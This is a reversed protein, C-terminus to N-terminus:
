KGEGCCIRTRKVKVTEALTVVDTKPIEEEYTEIRCMPPLGTCFIRLDVKPTIAGCMYHWPNEPDHVQKDANKVGFLTKIGLGVTHDAYTWVTASADGDTRVSIEFNSGKNLYKDRFQQLKTVLELLELQATNEM